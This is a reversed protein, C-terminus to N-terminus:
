MTVYYAIKSGESTITENYKNVNEQNLEGWFTGGISCESIHLKMDDDLWLANISQYSTNLIVGCDKAESVLKVVGLIKGDALDIWNGQDDYMGHMDRILEKVVNPNTLNVEKM